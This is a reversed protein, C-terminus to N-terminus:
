ICPFSGTLFILRQAKGAETAFITGPASVSAAPTTTQSTIERNKKGCRESRHRDPM